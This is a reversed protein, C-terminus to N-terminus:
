KAEEWVLVAWTDLKDLTIDSGSVPILGDFDPSIWRAKEVPVAFKVKLNYFPNANDYNICHLVNRGDATHRREILVTPPANVTLERNDIASIIKGAIKEADAPLSASASYSGSIEANIEQPAIHVAKHVSNPIKGTSIVPKEAPLISYGSFSLDYSIQYQLMIQQLIQFKGYVKSFDKEAEEWDFHLVVEGAPISGVFLERNDRYFKVMSRFAQCLEGDPFDKINQQRMMFNTGPWAGFVAAEATVLKVERPTSVLGHGEKGSKWTTSFLQYGIAEATKFFNVQNILKGDSMRPCNGSEAWLMGANKGLECFDAARILRQDLTGRIPSPNWITMIEPDLSRAYNRLVTMRETLVQVRYKVWRRVKESYPADNIEDPSPQAEGCFDRYARNCRQCYCPQAYFNDFHLGDLGVEQIGTCICKKLHELYEPSNICPLYRGPSGCWLVPAGSQDVKIWNVAEPHEKFFSEHFISGYQLYGFVKIGHRHCIETLKRCNCIEEQEAALGFGKVFHTVICNVGLEAAQRVSDERHLLDYWFRLEALEDDTREEPKGNNWLYFQLPEWGWWAWILMESNM